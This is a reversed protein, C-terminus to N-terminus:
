RVNRRTASARLKVVECVVFLEEGVRKMSKLKLRTAAALTTAGIGDTITPADRGGFIKPCVTVNLEDM